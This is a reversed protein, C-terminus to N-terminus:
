RGASSPGHGAGDRDPGRQLARDQFSELGGGGIARRSQDARERDAREVVGAAAPRAAPAQADSPEHARDEGLANEEMGRREDVHAQPRQVADREGGSVAHQAKAEEEPAVFDDGAQGMSPAPVRGRAPGGPRDQRERGHELEQSGLEGIPEGVITEVFDWRQPLEVFTWWEASTM